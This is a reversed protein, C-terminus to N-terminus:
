GPVGLRDHLKLTEYKMVRLDRRALGLPELIQRRAEAMTLEPHDLKGSSLENFRTDYITYVYGGECIKMALIKDDGVRWAAEDDTIVPEPTYVTGNNEMLEAFQCIHFVFYGIQTHYEDIFTCPKLVTENSHRLQLQICGGDSIRFLERYRSDIFRIDKGEPNFENM